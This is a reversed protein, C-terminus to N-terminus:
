LKMIYALAYYQPRKDLTSLGTASNGSLTHTHASGAGSNGSVTHTHTENAVTIGTGSQVEQTASPAGTAYSGNAHTHAGENAAAIAGAAHVHSLDVSDSGGTNAVAYTSGACVIFRNRLDPTGNTGDCLQWGSPISAISGSWLVIMGAFYGATVVHSPDTPAGGVSLQGTTNLTQQSAVPADGDPDNIDASDDYLLPGVSGLWYKHLTV